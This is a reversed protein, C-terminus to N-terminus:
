FDNPKIRNRSSYIIHMMDDFLFNKDLVINDLKVNNTNHISFMSSFFYQDSVYGSGGSMQVYKFVSGATKGLLAITGM